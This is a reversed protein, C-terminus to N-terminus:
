RRAECRAAVVRRDRVYQVRMAECAAFSPAEIRDIAYGTSTQLILILIWTMAASWGMGLHRLGLRRIRSAAGGRVERVVGSFECGILVKM